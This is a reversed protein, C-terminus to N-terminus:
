PTPSITRAVYIVVQSGAPASRGAAPRQRLVHDKQSEDTAPRDVSRVTFGAEILTRRAADEDQGVVNPVTVLPRTGPGVSVNIRVLSHATTRSGGPPQQSVVVGRPRSSRAPYSDVRFGARELRAVAQRQALGVVNPVTPLAAVDSPNTASGQSPGMSVSIGIPSGKPAPTGSQPAQAVVIGKTESSPVRSVSVRFGLRRITAKAKAETLGEVAPVSSPRPGQSVSLLVTSGRKAEGGTAPAQKVVRGKPQGSFVRESRGRLKAAELHEFAKAVPLGVVDPVEITSPGRAVTITVTGGRDLETGAVPDQSLVTGLRAGEAVRGRVDAPYGRQGLRAMAFATRLGVVNPVHSTAASTGDDRTIFYAAGLGGIVLALLLVLWPWLLPRRPPPTADSQMVTRRRFM